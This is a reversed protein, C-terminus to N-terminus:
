RVPSAMDKAVKDFGAFLQDRVARESRLAERFYTYRLRNEAEAVDARVMTRLARLFGETARRQDVPSVGRRGIIRMWEAAPRRLTDTAFQPDEKKRLATVFDFIDGTLRSIQTVQAANQAFLNWNVPEWTRVSDIRFAFRRVVIEGPAAGGARPQPQHRSEPSRDPQTPGPRPPHSPAPTSPTPTAEAQPKASFEEYRKTLYTAVGIVKGTKVHVIPSGSNGPIFAASVELRDPGIGVIEGPLSTVVGGGGSNGLVLIADGLRVDRAFDTIAELPQAPEETVAIRLIDHKAAADAAGLKLASGNLGTFRPQQMGALVHINTFLWTKGDARCTFGSGSGDKGEIVVLADAHRQV